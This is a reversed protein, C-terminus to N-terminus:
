EVGKERLALRGASTLLYIDIEAMGAAPHHLRDLWVLWGESLCTELGNLLGLPVLTRDVPVGIKDRESRMDLVAVAEPSLKM